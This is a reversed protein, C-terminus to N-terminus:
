PSAEPSTPAVREDKAYVEGLEPLVRVEFGRRELIARLRLNPNACHVAHVRWAIREVGSRVAYRRILLTLTPLVGEGGGDIHALEVTLGTGERAFRGLVEGSGMRFSLAEGTLVLARLEEDPLALLEEPALGEIDVVRRPM